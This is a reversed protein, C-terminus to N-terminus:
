RKECTWDLQREEDSTCYLCYNGFHRLNWSWLFRYELHLMESTEGKFKVSMQIPFYNNTEKSEGLVYPYVTPPLIHLEKVYFTTTARLPTIKCYLWTSTQLIQYMSLYKFNCTGAARLLKTNENLKEVNRRQGHFLSLHVVYSISAVGCCTL